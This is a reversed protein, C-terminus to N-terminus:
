RGRRIRLWTQWGFDYAPERIEEVALQRQSCENRIWRFSHFVKGPEDSEHSRGVWQDGGYDRRRLSARNYSTLLIGTPTSNAVFSDLMLRIHSKAAHTWISRAIMFDFMQGFVSFDFRSNNDFRPQKEEILGPELLEGIGAELMPTEPEIGFYCGPRLFHILWYGARLCGCGIDLVKSDPYLGDNLLLAFQRRGGTEFLGVPGGVFVTASLKAAKEQLKM